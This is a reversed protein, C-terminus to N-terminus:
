PGNYAIWLDGKRYASISPPAAQVEVLAHDAYIHVGKVLNQLNTNTAIMACQNSVQNGHCPNPEERVVGGYLDYFTNFFNTLAVPTFFPGWAGNWLKVVGGLNLPLATLLAPISDVQTTAPPPMWATQGPGPSMQVGLVFPYLHVSQLTAGQHSWFNGLTHAAPQFFGTNYPGMSHDNVTHIDETLFFSGSKMHPLVQQITALMQHAQHGGDDICIDLDPTIAAFFHTWGPVSAQDGLYITTRADNFQVCNKNIDMGYYYTQPLVAHYMNISGGSQVGIELMKTPRGAM